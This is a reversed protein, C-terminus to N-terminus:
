EVLLDRDGSKYIRERAWRPVVICGNSATGPAKVSDGHVRFATRGHADHGVPELVLAYPGVRKSNYPKGTVRWMGRPIPGVSRVNEKSPDNKGEGHGSYGHM